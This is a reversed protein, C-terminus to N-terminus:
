RRYVVYREGRRNEAIYRKGLCCVEARYMVGRRYVVCRGEEINYMNHIISGMNRNEGLRNIVGKYPLPATTIFVLVTSGSM